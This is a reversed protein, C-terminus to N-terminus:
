KLPYFHILLLKKSSNDVKVRDDTRKGAVWIINKKDCVLIIDEKIKQSIIFDKIKVPSKMGYPVFKDGNRRRRLTLPFTVKSFDIYATNQDKLNIGKKDSVIETEFLFGGFATKKGPKQIIKNKDIIEKSKNGKSIVVNGKEYGIVFGAPLSMRKYEAIIKEAGAVLTYDVKRKAELVRYLVAM